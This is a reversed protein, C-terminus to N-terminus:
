DGIVVETGVKTYEYIQPAISEPLRISGHAAPYGPLHGAHLGLGSANLRLFYKKPTAQFSTGSPASDIVASVGIRVTRGKRDVFDGYTNSHHEPLKELITFAGKPTMGSKKGSSIPTDIAVEDDVFLWARQRELSIYLKTNDKTARQLVRPMTKPQPQERIVETAPTQNRERPPQEPTKEEEEGIAAVPSLFFGTGLVLVIFFPCMSQSIM